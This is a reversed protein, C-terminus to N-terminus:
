GDFTPSSTRILLFFPEWGYKQNIKFAKLINKIVIKLIANSVSYYVSGIPNRFEYRKV